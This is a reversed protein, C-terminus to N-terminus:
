SQLCCLFSDGLRRQREGVSPNCKSWPQIEKEAKGARERNERVCCKKRIFNKCIQNRRPTQKKSSRSWCMKSVDSPVLARTVRGSALHAAPSAKGMGKTFYLSNRSSSEIPPRMMTSFNLGWKFFFFILFHHQSNVHLEKPLYSWKGLIYWVLYYVILSVSSM